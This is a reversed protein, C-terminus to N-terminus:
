LEAVQLRFIHLSMASRAGGVNIRKGFQTFRQLVAAIVELATLYGRCAHRTAQDVAFALMASM